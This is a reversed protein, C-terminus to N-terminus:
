SSSSTGLASRSPGKGVVAFLTGLDFSVARLTNPRSSGGVFELYRDLLPHDISYRNRRSSSVLRVFSLKDTVSGAEWAPISSV